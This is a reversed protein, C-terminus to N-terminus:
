FKFIERVTVTIGSEKCIAKTPLSTDPDIYVVSNKTSVVTYGDESKISTVPSSPSLARVAKGINLSHFLTSDESLFEKGDLSIRCIGEAQLISFGELSDPSILRVEFDANGNKDPPSISFVADFDLKGGSVSVTASFGKSRYELPDKKSTLCSTLCLFTLLFIALFRLKQGMKSKTYINVYSSKKM